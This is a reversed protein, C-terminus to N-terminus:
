NDDYLGEAMWKRIWGKESLHKNRVKRGAALIASKSEAPVWFNVQVLGAEKYRQRQRDVSRRQRPPTKRESEPVRAGM